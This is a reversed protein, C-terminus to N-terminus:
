QNEILNSYDGEYLFLGKGVHRSSALFQTPDFKFPATLIYEFILVDIVGSEKKDKEIKQLHKKSFESVKQKYFEKHILRLVSLLIFSFWNKSM